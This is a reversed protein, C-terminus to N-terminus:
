ATVKDGRRGKGMRGWYVRYSEFRCGETGFVSARDMSSRTRVDRSKGCSSSKARGPGLSGRVGARVGAPKLRSGRVALLLSLGAFHDPGHVLIRAGIRDSAVRRGGGAVGRRLSAWASIPRRAAGAIEARGHSGRDGRSFGGRLSRAGARFRRSSAFSGIKAAFAGYAGLVLFDLLLGTAGLMCMQPLLHQKPDVFQPLVAGFFLLANPNSLQLLAGSWCTQGVSRAPEDGSAALSSAGRVTRVGVYVLYACSLWKVIAFAESSAAFLAGLGLAALLFFVGNTLLIGAAAWLSRRGPALGHAMVLMVAPGPTVSMAAKAGVFSIWLNGSM